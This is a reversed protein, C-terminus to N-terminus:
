EPHHPGRCSCAHTLAPAPNPPPAFHGWLHGHRTLCGPWMKTCPAGCGPVAHRLGTGDPCVGPRKLFRWRTRRRSWTRRFPLRHCWSVCRLIHDVVRYQQLLTKGGVMRVTGQIIQRSACKHFTDSTSGQLGTSSTLWTWAQISAATPGAAWHRCCSQMADTRRLGPLPVGSPAASWTATRTTPMNSRSVWRLVHQCALGSLM